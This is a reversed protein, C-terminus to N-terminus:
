YGKMIIPLYLLHFYPSCWRAIKDRGNETVWFCGLSDAAIGEPASGSALGLERFSRPSPDLRAVRNGNRETFWVLAQATVLSFPDSNSIPLSYWRFDGITQPIFQGIRNGTRETFWVYGGSDLTISWPQSGSGTYLMAFASSSPWLSPKLNGIRSVNPASFWISDTTYVSIDEPQANTYGSLLPYEAFAFDLTSTVVLQGLKNGNRETFWVQTPTVAIADLGTPQSDATPILFEDIAGTAIDLRGIKNGLRETFWILGASYDLDYPESNATPITYTVVQYELTPTVILLGIQNQNPLTFWIRGSSEVAIAHPGSPVPYETWVSLDDANAMDVAVFTSAALLLIGIAVM